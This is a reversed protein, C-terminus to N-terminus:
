TNPKVYHLSQQWKMVEIFLSYFTGIVLSIDQHFGKPTPKHLISMKRSPFGFDHHLVKDMWVIVHDEFHKKTNNWSIAKACSHRHSWGHVFTRNLVVLKNNALRKHYGTITQDSLRAPTYQAKQVTPTRKRQRPRGERMRDSSLHGQHSLIFRQERKNAEGGGQQDGVQPPTHGIYLHRFPSSFSFCLFLCFSLNSQQRVCGITTIAQPNKCDESPSTHIDRISCYTNAAVQDQNSKDKLSVEIWM